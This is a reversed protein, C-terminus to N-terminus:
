THIYNIYLLYTSLVGIPGGGLDRWRPLSGSRSSWVDQRAPIGASHHKIQVTIDRMSRVTWSLKEQFSSILTGPSLVSSLWTIRSSSSISSHNQAERFRSCPHLELPVYIQLVRTAWIKNRFGQHYDYRKLKRWMEFYWSLDERDRWNSSMCVKPASERSESLLMKSMPIDSAISSKRSIGNRYTCKSCIGDGGDGHGTSLSFHFTKISKYVERLWCYRWQTAPFSWTKFLAANRSGWDLCAARTEYVRM